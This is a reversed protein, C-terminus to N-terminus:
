LDFDNSMKDALCFPVFDNMERNMLWYIKNSTRVSPDNPWREFDVTLGSSHKKFNQPWFKVGNEYKMPKVGFNSAIRTRRRQFNGRM